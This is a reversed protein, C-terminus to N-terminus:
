KYARKRIVSTEWIVVDFVTKLQRLDILLIVLIWVAAWHYKTFSSLVRVCSSFTVRSGFRRVFKEVKTIGNFVPLLLITLSIISETLTWNLVTSETVIAFCIQGFGPLLYEFFRCPVHTSNYRLFILLQAEVITVFM